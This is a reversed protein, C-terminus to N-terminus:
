DDKKYIENFLKNKYDTYSTIAFGAAALTFGVIANIYSALNPCYISLLTFVIVYISGSIIIRMFVPLRKKYKTAHNETNTSPKHEVELPIDWDKEHEMVDGGQCIIFKNDIM